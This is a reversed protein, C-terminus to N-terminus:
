IFLRKETHEGLILLLSIFMFLYVYIFLHINHHILKGPPETTVTWRCPLLGLLSPITDRPWSSGRSSPVALWELIRAQLIGHVSSGTPSCEISDCLTLYLQLSKACVRVHHICIEFSQKWWWLSNYGTSIRPTASREVPLKSPKEKKRTEQHSSPPCNLFFSQTPSGQHSLPLSTAQLLCPNSRQVLSIGPWPAVLGTPWLQRHELAQLGCSSFGACRSGKSRLLLHWWLSFVMCQPSSNAGSAAVLSFGVHLLLSGVSGFIFWSLWEATESERCCWPSCCLWAERDMVLEQLKSLSMDM